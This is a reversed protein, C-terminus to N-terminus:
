PRLALPNKVNPMVRCLLKISNNLSRKTVKYDSVHSDMEPVCVQKFPKFIEMEIFSDHLKQGNTVVHKGSNVPLMKQEILCKYVKTCFQSM